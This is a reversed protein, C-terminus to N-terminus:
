ASRNQDLSQAYAVAAPDTDVLGQAAAAKAQGAALEVVDNVNGLACDVLVRVKTPAEAKPAKGPKVPPPPPPTANSTGAAATDAEALRALGGAILQDALADPAEFPQGPQIEASGEAIAGAAIVALAILSKNLSM